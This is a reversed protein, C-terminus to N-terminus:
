LLESYESPHMKTNFDNESIKVEIFAKNIFLVFVTWRDEVDWVDGRVWWNGNQGPKMCVSIGGSPKNISIQSSTLSLRETKVDIKNNEHMVSFGAIIAAWESTSYKTDIKPNDDSEFKEIVFMKQLTELLSNTQQVPMTTQQSSLRAVEKSLREIEQMATNWEGADLIDGSKKEKYDFGM